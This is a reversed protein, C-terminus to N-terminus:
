KSGFQAQAQELVEKMTTQGSYASVLNPQIYNNVQDWNDTTRQGELDTFAAAFAERVEERYEEPLADFYLPQSAELSPYSRGSSAILDQAEQGVLSGLVKLAAEREAGECTSAIGFGSGLVLGLSGKDSKPMRTAGAKFGPDNDYYSAANWTGDVAMAVNGASYEQEGWGTESASPVEAAVGQETALSAYWDSADVFEPNTLDLEGAENVPQQMSKAIPLAMWQFEGMGMGFGKHADTTTGKAAAEFDDFTWDLTPLKTGTEEFMDQNYFVMMAAVDYPIGLLKGDYTMIDLAGDTYADKEIGATKLDEDTLESLAPAFGSLRQGNMSTICALNGSSMNTTLKTFYDGWAATQTKITIDPNAARAIDATQEVWNLDDDGSAWMDWTVTVGSGSAADKGDESQGSSSSDTKGSGCAALGMTLTAALATAMVLKNRKM